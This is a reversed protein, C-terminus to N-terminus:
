IILIELLTHRFLFYENPTCCLKVLRSFYNFFYVVINDVVFFMWSSVMSRKTNGKRSESTEAVNNKLEKIKMWNNSSHMHQNSSVWGLHLYVLLCFILISAMSYFHFRYTISATAVNNKLM